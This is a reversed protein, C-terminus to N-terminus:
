KGKKKNRLEKFFSKMLELSEEELVGFDVEVKHNFKPHDVLNEVTGCCGMKYDRAGIVLRDIRSQVIAGACMPCPELSVYMTCDPLRWGGLYESAERIAIIEAHALPSKLSERLNYGRAIIKDKHVIIAGVPVEYTGYAKKALDIANKMYEIDKNM